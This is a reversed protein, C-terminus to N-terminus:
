NLHCALKLHRYFTFTCGRLCQGTKLFLMWSWNNPKQKRKNQFSTETMKLFLLTIKSWFTELLADHSPPPAHYKFELQSATLIRNIKNKQVACSNIAGFLPRLESGTWRSWIWSFCVRPNWPREEFSLSRAWKMNCVWLYRWPHNFWVKQEKNKLCKSYKATEHSNTWFDVKQHVDTSAPSGKYWWSPICIIFLTLLKCM